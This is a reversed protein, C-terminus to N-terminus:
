KGGLQQIERQIDALKKPWPKAKQQNEPLNLVAALAAGRDAYFGEVLIYFRSGGRLGRYVKLNSSNPQRDIHQYLASRESTAMLQLVYRNSPLDLLEAETKQLRILEGNASTTQM